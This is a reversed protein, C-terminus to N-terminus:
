SFADRTPAEELLHPAAALRAPELTANYGYIDKDHGRELIGDGDRDDDHGVAGRRPQQLHCLGVAILGVPYM